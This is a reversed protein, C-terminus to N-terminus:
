PNRIKIDESKIGLRGHPNYGVAYIKNEATKITLAGLLPYICKKDSLLSELKNFRKWKSEKVTKSIQQMSMDNMIFKNSSFRGSGFIIYQKFYIIILNKLHKPIRLNSIKEMRRLWGIFLLTYSDDDQKDEQKDEQKYVYKDPYLNALELRTRRFPNTVRQQNQQQYKQENPNFKPANPNM